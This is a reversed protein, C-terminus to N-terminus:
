LPAPARPREPWAQALGPGPRGHIRRRHRRASAGQWGEPKLSTCKMALGVGTSRPAIEVAALPLNAASISSCSLMMWGRLPTSPRRNDMSYRIRLYSIM